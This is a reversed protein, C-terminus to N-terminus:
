PRQAQRGAAGSQVPRAACAARVASAPPTTTTNHTNTHTPPRPRPRADETQRTQQESRRTTSGRRRIYPGTRSPSMRVRSSDSRSTLGGRGKNERGAKRSASAGKFSMPRIARLVFVFCCRVLM